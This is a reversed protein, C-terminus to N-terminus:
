GHAHEQYQCRFMNRQGKAPVERGCIEVSIKKRLLVNEDSLKRKWFIDAYVGVELIRVLIEDSISIRIVEM